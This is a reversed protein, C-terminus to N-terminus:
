YDNVFWPNNSFYALMEDVAEPLSRTQRERVAYALEQIM